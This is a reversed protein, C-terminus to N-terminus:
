VISVTPQPVMRNLIITLPVAILTGVIAATTGAAIASSLNVVVQRQTVCDKGSFVVCEDGPLIDSM